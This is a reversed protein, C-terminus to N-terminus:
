QQYARDVAIGPWRHALNVLICAVIEVTARVTQQCVQLFVIADDRVM